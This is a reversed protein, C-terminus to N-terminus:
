RGKKFSPFIMRITTYVRTRKERLFFTIPYRINILFLLRKKEKLFWITKSRKLITRANDFKGAEIYRYAWGIERKAIYENLSEKLKLPVEQKKLAARATKIFPEDEIDLSGITEIKDCARNEADWHYIAGLEWSFAVPYKIAIKGFLDADPGWWYGVPFGGVEQFIKKPIVTVSSNVPFEGYAGSKFYDPLLGEWPSNPIYKYDALRTEGNSNQIKYATAYMGAEPYREILRHITELHKPMWEDDADLFAVMDSKTEDVGRNRAASEGQNVQQILQIRPDDFGRVVEAGNDTSGDDVVIVDFDQFTQKLVSDLTRAIYPGKNFLPIVVSIKRSM